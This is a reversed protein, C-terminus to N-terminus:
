ELTFYIRRNNKGRNDIKLLIIKGVEKTSRVHTGGDAQIDYDGISVVRIIKLSEPLGKALKSIQPIKFAEDRSMFEVKTQLNQKLVENSKDIYSKIKEPDYNEISFDM